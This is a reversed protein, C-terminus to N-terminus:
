CNLSFFTYDCCNCECLNGMMVNLMILTALVITTSEGTAVGSQILVFFMTSHNHPLGLRHSASNSIVTATYTPGHVFTTQTAVFSSTTYPTQGPVYCGDTVTEQGIAILCGSGLPLSNDQTVFTCATLYTGDGARGSVCLTVRGANAAPIAWEAGGLRSNDPAYYGISTTANLHVLSVGAFDGACSVATAEGVAPYFCWTKQANQQVVNNYYSTNLTFAAYVYRHICSLLTLLFCIHRCDGVKGM